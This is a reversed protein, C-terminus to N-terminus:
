FYLTSGSNMLLHCGAAERVRILRPKCLSQLQQGVGPGIPNGHIDPHTCRPRCVEEDIHLM